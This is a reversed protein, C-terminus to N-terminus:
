KSQNPAENFDGMNVVYVDADIEKAIAKSLTTKGLEPPGISLIGTKHIINVRQYFESAQTWKKIHTLLMKVDTDTFVVNM